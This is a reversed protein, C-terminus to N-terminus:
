FNRYGFRRRYDDFSTHLSPKNWLIWRSLAAASMPEDTWRDEERIHRQIYRQKRTRDKHITYDEYGDAGFDTHTIRERDQDYFEMRFKKGRRPSRVLRIFTM